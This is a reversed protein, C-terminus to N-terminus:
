TVPLTLTFTAGLGPASTVELQGGHAEAIARAIYLGLGTGPKASTGSVRGFKEFVLRQDAPAIGNGHDTVDIVVRGNVATARVEVLEGEPSYKVANGILNALVQRLRVGDGRV